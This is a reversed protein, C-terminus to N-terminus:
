VREGVGHRAESVAAATLGTDALAQWLEQPWTGAEAAEVRDRTCLDTFIRGASETLLKQTERM